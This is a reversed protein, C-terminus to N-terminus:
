MALSSQLKRPLGNSFNPLISLHVLIFSSNEIKKNLDQNQQKHRTNVYPLLEYSDL